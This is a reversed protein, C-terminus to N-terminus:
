EEADEDVFSFDVEDSQGQDDSYYADSTAESPNM